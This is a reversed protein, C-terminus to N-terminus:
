GRWCRQVHTAAENQLRKECFRAVWLRAIKQIKRASREHHSLRWCTRNFESCLQQLHREVKRRWLFRRVSAQAKVLRQEFKRFRTALRWGRWRRQIQVSASCWNSFHVLHSVCSSLSELYLTQQSKDVFSNQGLLSGSLAAGFRSPACCEPIREDDTIVHTDIALFQPFETLIRERYEKGVHLQWPNGFLTLWLLSASLRVSNQM